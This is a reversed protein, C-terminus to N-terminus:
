GANCDHGPARGLSLGSQTGDGYRDGCDSRKRRTLSQFDLLWVQSRRRWSSKPTEERCSLWKSGLGFCSSAINAYSVMIARTETFSLLDASLWFSFVANAFHRASTRGMWKSRKAVSSRASRIGKTGGESNTGEANNKRPEVVGSTRPATARTCIALQLPRGERVDARTL